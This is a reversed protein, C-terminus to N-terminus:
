TALAERLLDGAVQRRYWASGRVDDIPAIGARLVSVAEAVVVETPQRGELAAEAGHARVVTPAVAGLALRVGTLTGDGSRAWRWALSVISIAMASRGGLKLFGEEGAPLPVRVLTVLQDPELVTRGPGTAFDAVPLTRSGGPGEIVVEAEAAVLPPILDAAPSANALNGGITARSRIQLSGFVRASDAIGPLAGRLQDVVRRIPALASLEVMGDNVTVVAPADALNSIDILKAVEPMDRVSPSPLTSLTANHAARTASRMLATV